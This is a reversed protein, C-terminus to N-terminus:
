ESFLFVTCLGVSGRQRHYLRPCYSCQYMRPNPPPNHTHIQARVLEPIPFLGIDSPLQFPKYNQFNIILVVRGWQETSWGVGTLILALSSNEGGAGIWSTGHVVYQSFISRKDYLNAVFVFGDGIQLSYLRLVLCLSLVYSIQHCPQLLSSFRLLRRFGGGEKKYVARGGSHTCSTSTRPITDSERPLTPNMLFRTM